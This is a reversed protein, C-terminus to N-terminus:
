RFEKNIKLLIQQEITDDYLHGRQPTLVSGGVSFMREVSASSPLATNYKVFLKKIKPYDNLMEEVKCSKSKLFRQLEEEESEGETMRQQECIFFDEHDDSKGTKPSNETSRIGLLDELYSEALKKKEGTLWNLKFKPHLCSAIILEKKEFTTLFRKNLGQQIALVLSHCNILNSKSLNELKQQLTSLVPLLYGMYMGTDSQLVDLARALPEM